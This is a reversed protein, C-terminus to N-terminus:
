TSVKESRFLLCINSLPVGIVDTNSVHLCVGTPSDVGLSPTLGPVLWNTRVTGVM